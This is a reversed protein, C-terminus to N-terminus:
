TTVFLSSAVLNDVYTLMNNDGYSCNYEQLKTNTLIHHTFSNLKVPKGDDGGATLCTELTEM